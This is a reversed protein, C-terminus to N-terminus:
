LSVTAATQLVQGLRGVLADREAKKEASDSVGSLENLATKATEIATTPQNLSLQIEALQTFATIRVLADEDTQPIAHPLTEQTSSILSLLVETAIGPDSISGCNVVANRLSARRALLLQPVRPNFEPLGRAQILFLGSLRLWEVVNAKELDSATAISMPFFQERVRRFDVFKLPDEPANEHRAMAQDIWAMEEDVASLDKGFQKLGLFRVAVELDRWSLPQPRNPRRLYDHLLKGALDAVEKQQRKGDTTLPARPNEVSRVTIDVLTAAKLMLDQQQKRLETELEARSQAQQEAREARLRSEKELNASQIADREANEARLRLLHQQEAVVIAAILAAVLTTSTTTLLASLGRNRAAWRFARSMAGLPRAQIPRQQMLARLDAALAEATAYRDSPTRALCKLCITELDVSIQPQLRRPPVPDQARIMTLVSASDRAIFPPRGTLLEYLLVGAGYVDSRADVPSDPTIQEPAMYCPTGPTQGSLTLMPSEVVRALGFDSLKIQLIGSDGRPLSDHDHTALLVNSPKIDRHIIGHCHAHNLAHAIVLCIDAALPPAVPRGQTWQALNMGDVFEMVLMPYQQETIVEYVSVINPHALRALATAEQLLRQVGTFDHHMPSLMKLAVARQMLHDTGVWVVGMGGSGIRHSWSYRVTPKPPLPSSGLSGGPLSQDRIVHDPVAEVADNRPTEIYALVDTVPAEARVDKILKLWDPQTGRELAQTMAAVCTDCSLLHNEFEESLDEGLESALYRSVSSLYPCFFQPM